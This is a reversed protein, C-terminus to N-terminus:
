IQEVLEFALRAIIEQDVAVVTNSTICLFGLALIISRKRNMWECFTSSIFKWGPFPWLGVKITSKLQIDIDEAQQEEFEVFVDPEKVFEFNEDSDGLEFALFEQLHEDWDAFESDESIHTDDSDDSNESDDLKVKLFETLREDWDSSSVSNDSDEAGAEEVYECFEESDLNFGFFAAYSEEFEFFEELEESKPDIFDTLCDKFDVFADSEDLNIDFMQAQRGSVEFFVESFDSDDSKPQREEWESSKESNESNVADETEFKLLEEQREQLEYTSEASESSTSDELIFKLLEARRAELNFLNQLEEHKRKLMESETEFYCKSKSGFSKVLNVSEQLQVEAQREDCESSNESNGSDESEVEVPESDESNESKESQRESESSEGSNESNESEVAQHESESDGWVSSEDSNEADASNNSCESDESNDSLESEVEELEATRKEWEAYDLKILDVLCKSDVPKVNAAEKLRQLWEIAGAPPGAARQMCVYCEDSEESNVSDLDLDVSEESIDLNDSEESEESLQLNDSEESEESLELTESEGSDEFINFVVSDGSNDLCESSESHESDDSNEESEKSSDLNETKESGKLQFELFVAQLKEYQTTYDPRRLPQRERQRQPPPQPQYDEPESFDILDISTDLELLEPEPADIFGILDMELEQEVMEEEEQEEEQEPQFDLEYNEKEEETEQEEEELEEAELEYEEQEPQFELEYNEKEEDTEQEEGDLEEEEQEEQLELEENEELEEGDQEEEVQEEDLERQLELEENEEQEPEQKQEDEQPKQEEVQPKQEEREEQQAAREEAQPKQEQKQPKQETSQASQSAAALRKMARLEGDGMKRLRHKKDWQAQRMRVMKPSSHFTYVLLYCLQLGSPPEVMRCMAVCRLLTGCISNCWANCWEAMSYAAALSDYRGLKITAADRCKASMFHYLEEMHGSYFVCDTVDFQRQFPEYPQQLHFILQPRLYPNANLQRWVEADDEYHLQHLTPIKREVLLWHMLELQTQSIEYCVAYRVFESFDPMGSTLRNLVSISSGFRAPYPDLCRVYKPSKIAMDFLVWTLDVGMLDNDVEICLDDVLKMWTPQKMLNKAIPMVVKHYIYCCICENCSCTRRLVEIDMM